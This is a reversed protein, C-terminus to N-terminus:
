PVRFAIESCQLSRRCPLESWWVIRPLQGESAYVVYANMNPKHEALKRRTLAEKKTLRPGRGGVLGLGCVLDHGM